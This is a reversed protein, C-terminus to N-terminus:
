LLEKIDNICECFRDKIAQFKEVDINRGFENYAGLLIAIAQLEKLTETEDKKGNINAHEFVVNTTTNKIAISKLGTKKM